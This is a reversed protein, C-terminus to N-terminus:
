PSADRFATPFHLQFLGEALDTVQYFSRSRHFHAGFLPIKGPSLEKEGGPCRGAQRNQVESPTGVKPGGATFHM